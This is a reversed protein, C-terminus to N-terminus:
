KWTGTVYFYVVGFIASSSTPRILYYNPPDSETTATTNWLLAGYGDSEYSSVCKPNIVSIPFSPGSMVTTRYWNGLATNCALGNINQYGYLEVRGNNWKRYFWTGDSIEEIVFDALPYGNIVLEAGNDLHLDTHHHFNKDNWDFIPLPAVVTAIDQRPTLADNSGVTLTWTKEYDLGTITHSFTYSTGSMTPEVAGLEVWGSERVGDVQAFNGDEDTLSYYVQLTNREKGFDGDFFKGKLTFTVEGNASFLGTDLSSTYKVYPIVDLVKFGNTEYGRTDKVSFYFTNSDINNITGTNSTYDDLFVSGCRITQFEISSQKRAVAGTNFYANSYGLIFKTNNGTLSLTRESTDIVTPSLTPTYNVLSMYRGVKNEYTIGDVTSRLLFLIYKSTGSTNRRLVNRESETLNFTYTGHSGANFSISRYPVDDNSGDFSICAEVSSTAAAPAYFTITPNQEDNFDHADTIYAKREIDDLTVSGWVTADGGLDDKNTNKWTVGLIGGSVRINFTKSGDADHYIDIERQSVINTTENKDVDTNVEHYDARGDITWSVYNTGRKTWGGNTARLDIRYSIRTSNNYIDTSVVWWIFDVYMEYKDSYYGAKMSLTGSTAM